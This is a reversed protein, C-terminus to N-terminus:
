RAQANQSGGIAPVRSQVRHRAHVLALEFRALELAGRLEKVLGLLRAREGVVRIADIDAM